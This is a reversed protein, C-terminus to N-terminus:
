LPLYYTKFDHGEKRVTIVWDTPERGQIKTENAICQDIGLLIFKYNLKELRCYIENFYALRMKDHQLREFYKNVQANDVNPANLVKKYYAINAELSKTDKALITNIEAMLAAWSLHYLHLDM